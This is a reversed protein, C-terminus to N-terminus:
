RASRCGCRARAAELEVALLVLEGGVVARVREVAAHLAEVLHDPLGLRELVPAADADHERVRARVALFAVRALEVGLHGIREGVVVREAELVLGGRVLRRRHVQGLVRVEVQRAVAGAVDECLLQHHLRTAESRDVLREDRGALELADLCRREVEPRGGRDARPDLGLVLLDLEARAVVV